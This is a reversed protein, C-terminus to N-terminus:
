STESPDQNSNIIKVIERSSVMVCKEEIEQIRRKPIDYHNKHFWCKKINLDEAMKHLNDKSYPVCVLHRKGDTYYKLEESQM